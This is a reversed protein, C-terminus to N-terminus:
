NMVSVYGPEPSVRVKLHLRDNPGFQEGLVAAVRAKLLAGKKIRPVLFRAVTARLYGLDRGKDDLVRIAMPDYPNAPDWVLLACDGPSVEKVRELRREHRLGVVRTFFENAEEYFALVRGASDGLLAGWVFALGSVEFGGGFSCHYDEAAANLILEKPALSRVFGIEGHGWKSVGSLARIGASLAGKRLLAIGMILAPLQLEDGTYADLQGSTALEKLLSKM